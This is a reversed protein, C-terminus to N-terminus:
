TGFTISNRKTDLTWNHEVVSGLLNNEYHLIVKGFIFNCEREAYKIVASSLFGCIVLKSIPM